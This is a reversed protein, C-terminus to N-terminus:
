VIPNNITDNPQSGQRYNGIQNGNHWFTIGGDFIRGIADKSSAPMNGSIVANQTMVFNWYERGTLNPKKVKNVSYGFCSFFDDIRKAEDDRVHCHYFYFDLYRGGVVINPTSRGVPINARYHADKFQYVIKNQAEIINTATNIASSVNKVLGAGIQLGTANLDSFDTKNSSPTYTSGSITGAYLDLVASAGRAVTIDWDTELRTKGGSAIWAQYADYVFANKPFDDMTVKCDLNNEQGNYERPYCMLQGGGIMTGMMYFDINPSDFYEWRYSEGSGNHTTCLLYSYPYMFLKNNKPQYNDYATPRIIGYQEGTKPPLKIPTVTGQSALFTPITYLDIINQQQYGADWSGLLTQLYAKIYDADGTGSQNSPTNAPLTDFRTGNFVGDQLLAGDDPEGTSNIVVSYSGFYDTGFKNIEDCDYVDSGVPESELELGFTDNDVHERLVMCPEIDGGQMFWTQMVDIEYYVVATNENVYDVGLVFAYFWKDVARDNQFRMYTVGLLKTADVQIKVSDSTYRRYTLNNFTLASTVKGTFFTNQAEADAFYITHLYRNDLNIGKFLQLTSNPQVYAM